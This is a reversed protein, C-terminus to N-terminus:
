LHKLLWNESDAGLGHWAAFGALLAVAVLSNPGLLQMLYDRIEVAKKDSKVFWIADFESCCTESVSRLYMAAEAKAADTGSQIAVLYLM